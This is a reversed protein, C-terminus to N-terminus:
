ITPLNPQQFNKKKYIQFAITSGLMGFLPFLILTSILMTTTFTPSYGYAIYENSLKEFMQISETPLEKGFQFQGAGELIIAMPNSKTMLTIFLDIGTCVIAALIGSLIGIFLADKQSFSLKAEQMKKSYSMTGAFGGLIIGACCLINILSLLPTSFLIIMVAASLFVASLKKSSTNM